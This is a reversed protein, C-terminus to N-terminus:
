DNYFMRLLEREEDSLNQPILEGGSRIIEDDPMDNYFGLPSESIKPMKSVPGYDAPESVVHNTDNKINIQVVSQKKFRIALYIGICVIAFLVILEALIIVM